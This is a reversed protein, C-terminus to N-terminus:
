EEPFEGRPPPPCGPGNKFREKMKTEHEQKMKQLEAKQTPDLLSEFRKMNAERIEHLKDRDNKMNAKIAEIKKSKEAETANSESITRIQERKARIDKIIPEM